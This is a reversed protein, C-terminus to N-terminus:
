DVAIYVVGTDGVFVWGALRVPMPRTRGLFFSPLCASGGKGIGLWMGSFLASSTNLFYSWYRLLLCTPRTAALNALFVNKPTDTSLSDDIESVSSM